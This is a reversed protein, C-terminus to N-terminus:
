YLKKTAKSLLEKLLIREVDTLDGFLENEIQRLSNEVSDMSEIGLKTICAIKIRKDNEDHYTQLFGKKELRSVLGAATSQAVNLEHELEKLTVKGDLSHKLCGLVHGQILTLDNDKLLANGNKEIYDHVLKLLHLIHNREDM